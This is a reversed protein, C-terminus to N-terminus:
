RRWDPHHEHRSTRVPCVAFERGQRGPRCARDRAPETLVATVTGCDRPVASFLGDIPGGVLVAPALSYIRIPTGFSILTWSYRTPRVGADTASSTECPCSSKMSAWAPLPM